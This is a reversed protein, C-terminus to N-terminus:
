GCKIQCCHLLAPRLWAGPCRRACTMMGGPLTACVDDHGRAVDRVRWWTFQTQTQTQTQTMGGPLTACVDDHGWATTEGLLQLMDEWHLRSWCAYLECCMYDLSHWHRVKALWSGILWLKSIAGKDDMSGPWVQQRDQVVSTEQM